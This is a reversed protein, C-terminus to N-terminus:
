EGLGLEKAEESTIQCEITFEKQVDDPSNDKMFQAIKACALDHLHDLKFILGANILNFVIEFDNIDIFTGNWEGVNEKLTPKELTKPIATKKAEDINELYEKVKILVNEPFDIVPSCEKKKEQLFESLKVLEESFEVNKADSTKIIVSM